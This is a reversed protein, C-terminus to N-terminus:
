ALKALEQRHALHRVHHHVYHHVHTHHHAHSHHQKQHHAITHTHTETNGLHISLSEGPEIDYSTWVAQNDTYKKLNALYIDINESPLLLTYNHNATRAAAPRLGPNLLRITRIPTHSLTAAHKLDIKGHTAISSFYPHNAIEPLQVHYQERHDVLYALALLKPVYARTQQPLPLDWFDTPKGLRRNHKIAAEVAGEGSNYAAIALLWDGGFYHHLYSLYHLAAHTSSQIDRRGDYWWSTKAGFGSATGPMMQWIGAAGATSVGFPLYNSEIMPLLAIEGPMHREETQLHVYYLYPAANRTLEHLYDRHTLLYHVEPSILSNDSRDNLTFENSVATWASVPTDHHASILQTTNHEATSTSAHRAIGLNPYVSFLLMLILVVFVNHDKRM